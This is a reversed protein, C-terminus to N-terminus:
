LCVRLHGAARAPFCRRQPLEWGGLGYSAVLPEAFSWFTQTQNSESFDYEVETLTGRVATEAPKAFKYDVETITGVPCLDIVNGSLESQFLKEVYRCCTLLTRERLSFKTWVNWNRNLQRTWKYWACSCRGSWHCISRLPYLSYM